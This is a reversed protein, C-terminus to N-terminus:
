VEFLLLEVRLALQNAFGISTRVTMVFLFPFDVVSFGGSLSSLADVQNSVEPGVGVEGEESEAANLLCVEWM